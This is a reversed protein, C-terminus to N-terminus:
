PWKLMLEELGLAKFEKWTKSDDETEKILTKHNNRANDKVEKTLNIGLSNKKKSTIEFATIKNYRKSIENNTYLFAVSKQININYGTSSHNIKKDM